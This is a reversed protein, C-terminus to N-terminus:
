PSPKASQQAKQEAKNQDSLYTGGMVVVMFLLYIIAAIRRAKKSEEYQNMALGTLTNFVRM